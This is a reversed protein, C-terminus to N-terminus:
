VSMQSRENSIGEARLGDRWGGEDVGMLDNILRQSDVVAKLQVIGVGGHVLDGFNARAPTEEVLRGRELIVLGSIIDTAHIRAVAHFFPLVSARRWRTLNQALLRLIKHCSRGGRFIKLVEYTFALLEDLLVFRSSDLQM